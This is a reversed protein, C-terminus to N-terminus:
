RPMLFCRKIVSDYPDMTQTCDLRCFCFYIVNVFVNMIRTQTKLSSVFHTFVLM